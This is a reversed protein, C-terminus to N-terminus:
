KNKSLSIKYIELIKNNIIKTAFKEVVNERANRGYNLSLNQNELLFKIADRIRNKNKLPVLLGSYKHRIVDNCGPVDTTIIPICMSSAELLSKSLGERWSPLVVIDIKKYINLMSNSKGLFNINKNNLIKLNHESLCSRNQSDIEGAVNLKFKYNNEWLENCAEVLEIIGKERLIRAPFLVQIKKNFEKKLKSQKFYNIDVGSGKIIKTKEKTILNMKIFADRDDKNHFITISNKNNFAYRYFPKLIKNFFNIKKRNSFFSPGLGTIHNLVISTRLFRGVLGGYISPKITFNHVLVPNYRLHCYIINIVTLFELFLNESGRVLFLKNVKYFYKEIFNSYKDFTSLLILKYGQKNLENLLDKRFNYLYWTCNSIILINKNKNM